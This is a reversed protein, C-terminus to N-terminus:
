VFISVLNIIASSITNFNRESFLEKIKKELKQYYGLIFLVIFVFLIIFNFIKLVFNGYYEAYVISVVCSFFMAWVNYNFVKENVSFLCIIINVIFIIIKLIAHITSHHM